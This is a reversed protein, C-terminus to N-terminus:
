LEEDDFTELEEGEGSILMVKKETADIQNGCTKVVKMANQYVKFAEELSLSGNELRDVANDLYEFSDEISLEMLEDDKESSKTSKPM